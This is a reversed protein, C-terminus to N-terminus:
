LSYTLVSFLGGRGGARDAATGKVKLGKETICLVPENNHPKAPVRWKPFGYLFFYPSFVSINMFRFSFPFVSGM